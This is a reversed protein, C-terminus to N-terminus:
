IPALVHRLVHILALSTHQMFIPVQMSTPVPLSHTEMHEDADFPFPMHTLIRRCQRPCLSPAQTHLHLSLCTLIAHPVNPRM